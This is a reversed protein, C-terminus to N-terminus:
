KGNWVMINGSAAQVIFQKAQILLQKGIDIGSCWQVWDIEFPHQKTELYLYVWSVLGAADPLIQNVKDHIM